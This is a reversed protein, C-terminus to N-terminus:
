GTIFGSKKDWKSLNVVKALTSNKDIIEQRIRNEAELINLARNAMEIVRAQPLVMVGDDDAVIWDGPEIRQGSVVIPQNIEGSGHPDGAHSTVHKTWVPFQHKRIVATDRVAGNVIVAGLDKGSASETALEGWIAPPQGCADIVIIEGPKAVDIAQVPKSWDGPLTRVTVAQGCAFLGNMLPKIDALCPQRHSGDSINSTSVKTLIEKVDLKSRKFLETQIAQGTDLVKRIQKTAEATDKAKTIAGGVIVIDAGAEIAKASSESNLGGAVAIPLSTIPRLMVLAALPDEGLMQADIPCHVNIQHVGIKELEPVFSEPDKVGLLDVAVKIGYHKGSEVCEIITSISATGSVTIFDAGAKAASETEIKGADMTKMDAVIINSSFASRINRVSDLGESKILPTGAEIIDVGYPVSSKAVDLARPLELFDLALQLLTKKM